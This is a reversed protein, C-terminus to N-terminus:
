RQSIVCDNHKHPLKSLQAGTALRRVQRTLLGGCAPLRGWVVAFAEMPSNM